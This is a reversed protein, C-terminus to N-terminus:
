KFELSFIDKWIELGLPGSHGGWKMLLLQKDSLKLEKKFQNWNAGDNIFDDKSSIIRIPIPNNQLGQQLWYSLETRRDKKELM